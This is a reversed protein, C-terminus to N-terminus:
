KLDMWHIKFAHVSVELKKAQHGWWQPPRFVIIESAVNSLNFALSSRDKCFSHIATSFEDWTADTLPTWALESRKDTLPQLIEANSLRLHTFQSLTKRHLWLQQQRTKNLHFGSSLAASWCSSSCAPANHLWPDDWHSGPLEVFSRYRWKCRWNSM